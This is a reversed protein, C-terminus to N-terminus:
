GNTKGMIARLTQFKPNNEPEQEEFGQEKLRTKIEEIPREIGYSGYGPIHEKSSAEIIDKIKGQRLVDRLAQTTLEPDTRTLLNEYKNSDNTIFPLISPSVPTEARRNPLNKDLTRAHGSEHFLTSQLEAGKNPNPDLYIANRTPDTFGHWHSPLDGYETHWKPLEKMLKDEFDRMSETKYIDKIAANTAKDELLRQLGYYMNGPADQEVGKKQMFGYNPIDRVVNTDLTRYSTEPSQRFVNEGFLKSLEPFQKKTEPIAEKQRLYEELLRDQESRPM